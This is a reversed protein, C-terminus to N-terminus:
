KMEARATRYDYVRRGKTNCNVIYEVRYGDEQVIRSDTYDGNDVNKTEVIAPLAYFDDLSSILRRSYKGNIRASNRLGKGYDCVKVATPIECSLGRESLWRELGQRTAFATHAQAGNTVTYWYGCTQAHQEANLATVMLNDYM